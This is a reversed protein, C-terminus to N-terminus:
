IKDFISEEDAHGACMIADWVRKRWDWEWFSFNLDYEKPKTRSLISKEIEKKEEDSFNTRTKKM